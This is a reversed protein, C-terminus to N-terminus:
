PVFTIYSLGGVKGSLGVVNSNSNGGTPGLSKLSIKPHGDLSNVVWNSSPINIESLILDTTAQSFRIPTLVVFYGMPNAWTHIGGTYATIGGVNQKIYVEKVKAPFNAIDGTINNNDQVAGFAFLNTLVSLDSISGTFGSGGAILSQISFREMSLPIGTLAGALTNNGGIEFTKLSNFHSDSRLGSISGAITNLGYIEIAQINECQVDQINGSITNGGAVNIYVITSHYANIGNISGTITNNGWVHFYQISVPLNSINGFLTNGRIPDVVYSSSRKGDIWVQAYTDPINAIDGTVTNWGSIGIYDTKLINTSVPLDAINGTLTNDGDLAFVFPGTLNGSRPINAVLGSITNSGYISTATLLPPLNAVDGTLTNGQSPDYAHTCAPWGPNLANHDGGWVVLRTLSRPLDIVNGQVTQSIIEIDTAGTLKGLETAQITMHGGCFGGTGQNSDILKSISSLNCIIIKVNGTYATPYVHDLNNSTWSGAAYSSITGDGWDIKFSESSTIFAFTVRYVGYAQMIFENPSCTTTTTTSTTSTTTPTVDKAQATFLCDLPPLTTKCEPLNQIVTELIECLTDGTKLGYCEINDGSYIVCECNYFEDCTECDPNITTTTTTTPPCPPACQPCISEYCGCSASLGCSCGCGCSYCM